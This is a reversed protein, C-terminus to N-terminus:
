AQIVSLRTLRKPSSGLGRKMADLRAVEARKKLRPIDALTPHYCKMQRDLTWMFDLRGTAYAWAAFRQLSNLEAIRHEPFHDTARRLSEGMSVGPVLERQLALLACQVAAYFGLRGRQQTYFKAFAVIDAHKYHKM